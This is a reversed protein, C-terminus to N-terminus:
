SAGCSCSAIRSGVPFNKSTGSKPASKTLTNEQSFPLKFNFSSFLRCASDPSYLHSTLPHPVPCASETCTGPWAMQSEVGRITDRSARRVHVEDTFEGSGDSTLGVGSRVRTSKVLKANKWGVFHGVGIGGERERVERCGACNREEVHRLADGRCLDSNGGVVAEEEDRVAVVCREGERSEAFGVAQAGEGERRRSIQREVLEPGSASSERAM